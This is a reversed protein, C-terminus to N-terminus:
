GEAPPHAEAVLRSVLDSLDGVTRVCEADEDVIAIKFEAEVAMVLEVVDLSDAGLDEVIAQEPSIEESPVGLQEALIAVVKKATDSEPARDKWGTYAEPSKAEPCHSQATPQALPEALATQRFPSATALMLSLLAYIRKM